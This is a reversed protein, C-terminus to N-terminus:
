QGLKQYGWYKAKLGQIFTSFIKKKTTKMYYETDFVALYIAFKERSLTTALACRQQAINQVRDFFNACGQQTIENM